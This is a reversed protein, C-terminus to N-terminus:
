WAAHKKPADMMAKVNEPKSNWPTECEVGLFYGGGPGCDEILKKCYADVEEPTGYVLLASPVNGCLAMTGGLVEKARKMDTKETDLCLRGRPVGEAWSKIEDLHPTQDNDFHLWVKLGRAVFMDIMKKAIPSYFERYMDPPTGPPAGNYLFAVDAGPLEGAGMQMCEWHTNIVEWEAWWEMFEKVKEPREYLDSVLGNIGRYSQLMDLPHGARGSYTLPIGTEEYFRKWMKGWDKTFEFQYYLFEDVSRTHIGNAAIKPSFMLSSFGREMVDDYDDFIVKEYFSPINGAPPFEDYVRWDLCTMEWGCKPLMWMHACGTTLPHQADGLLGRKYCSLLAGLVKEPDRITERVTLGALYGIIYIHLPATPVRDAATLDWAAQVRQHSTISSTM